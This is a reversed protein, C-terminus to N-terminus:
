WASRAAPPLDETPNRTRYARRGTAIRALVQDAPTAHDPTRSIRQPM